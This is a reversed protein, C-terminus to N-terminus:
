IHSCQRHVPRTLHTSQGVRPKGTSPNSKDSIAAQMRTMGLYWSSGRLAPAELQRVSDLPPVTPEGNANPSCPFAGRVHAARSSLSPSRPFGSPGRQAESAAIGTSTTTARWRARFGLKGLGAAQISSAMESESPIRSSM